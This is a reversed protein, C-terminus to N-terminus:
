PTGWTIADTTPVGDVERVLGLPNAAQLEPPLHADAVHDFAQRGTFRLLSEPIGVSTFAPHGTSPFPGGHHMTPVVAVGTPVKSDLFRGVRPLLVDRVAPYAEEDTGSSSAYVSGTLGPEVAALVAAVQTVDDAVVLLAMPGFAEAGLVEPAALFTAGDVEYLSPDVHLGPGGATAADDNGAIRRAGAATWAEAAAVLGAAVGPGLVVAPDADDVAAALAARVEDASSREVVLLGPKTCMQGGAGLVSGALEAGIEAGREQAAGPLVAVPNTASMELYIPVGAADAAAKLAMGARRSGTYATAALRRDAVLGLGVEDDVAHLLQLTAAPLDADIAARRALEALLATTGPHGPNSKAIVPHHTAVAAAFDGGAAPNFALPFNNPGLVLAAGPLPAQWAAVEATPALQPRRWSRARAAAAAQRLQGTTRPLEVDLLRPQVPLGTELSAVSTLLDAHQEIGGALGELFSALQEPEAARLRPAAEAAAVLVAEVDAESSVPIAPLTEGTAPASSPLAHVVDAPRWAGDVLVQTRDLEVL